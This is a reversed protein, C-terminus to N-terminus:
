VDPKHDNILGQLLPCTCAEHFKVVTRGQHGHVAQVYAIGGEYNLFSPTASVWRMSVTGDPWEIGWAVLGTGSVGTVDEARHLTFCRM